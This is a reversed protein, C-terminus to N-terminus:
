AVDEDAFIDGCDALLHLLRTKKSAGHFAQLSIVRSAEFSLRTQPPAPLPPWSSHLAIEAHM